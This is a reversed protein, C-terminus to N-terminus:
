NPVKQFKTRKILFPVFLFALVFVCFFPSTYHTIQELQSKDFEANPKRAYLIREQVASEWMNQVGQLIQNKTLPKRM